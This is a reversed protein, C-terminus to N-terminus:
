GSTGQSRTAVRRGYSGRRFPTLMEGITGPVRRFLKAITRHSAGAKRLAIACHRRAEVVRATRDRGLVAYGDVGLRRALELVLRRADTLDM